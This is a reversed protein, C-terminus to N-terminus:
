DQPLMPCVGSSPCPVSRGAQVSRHLIDLGPLGPSLPSRHRLSLPSPRTRGLPSWPALPCSPCLMPPHSPLFAEISKPTIVIHHHHLFHEPKCSVCFCKPPPSPPPSVYQCSIGVWNWPFRARQLAGVIIRDVQINRFKFDM